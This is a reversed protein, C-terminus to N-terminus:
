ASGAGLGEFAEEPAIACLLRCWPLLFARIARFLITRDPGRDVHIGCVCDARWGAIGVAGAQPIQRWRKLRLPDASLPSRDFAAVEGDPVSPTHHNRKSFDRSM